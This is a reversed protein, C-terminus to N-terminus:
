TNPPVSIHGLYEGSRTMFVYLYYQDREVPVVLGKKAPPNATQMTYDTFKQFSSWNENFCPNFHNGASDYVGYDSCFLAYFHSQYLARLLQEDPDYGYESWDFYRMSSCYVGDDVYKGNMMVPYRYAMGTSDDWGDYGDSSLTFTNKGWNAEVTSMAKDLDSKLKRADAHFDTNVKFTSTGEIRLLYGYFNMDDDALLIMPSSAGTKYIDSDLHWSPVAGEPYSYYFLANLAAMEDPTYTDSRPFQSLDSYSAGGFSTVKPLATKLKTVDLSYFQTDPDYAAEITFSKGDAAWVPFGTNEAAARTVAGQDILTELLSKGTSKLGQGLASESILAVDGRTFASAASYEGNTLGIKDSFECARYYIFDPNEGSDSYKLARLVFTIYMNSTATAGGGFQTDSIGNTLGKDYAYAVYPNLWEPVDTFPHTAAAALADAEAGLLRILMVLAEERRPARDLEYVPNGSGDTGTGKFLGLSYLTDAASKAANESEAMAVLPMASFALAIILFLAFFKKKM